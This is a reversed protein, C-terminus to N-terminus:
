MELYMWIREFEAYIIVDSKKVHELEELVIMGVDEGM